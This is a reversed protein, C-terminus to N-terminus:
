KDSAPAIDLSPFCDRSFLRLSRVHRLVQRWIREANWWTPSHKAMIRRLSSRMAKNEVKSLAANLGWAKVGLLIFELSPEVPKASPLYTLQIASLPNSANLVDSVRASQGCKDPCYRVEIRMIAQTPRIGKVEFLQLAKDYVVIRRGSREAGLYHSGVKWSETGDKAFCRMWNLNEQPKVTYAILDHISQGCIDVSPDIRTIRGKSLLRRYSNGFLMKLIQRIDEIESKTRQAPNFDLRAFHMAPKKGRFQLLALKKGASSNIRYNDEYATKRIRALTLYPGDASEGILDDVASSFEDTDLDRYGFTASLRDCIARQLVPHPDSKAIVDAIADTILNTNVTKPQHTHSHDPHYHDHLSPTTRDPLHKNSRVSSKQYSASRQASSAISRTAKTSKANQASTTARTTSQRQREIAKPARQTQNNTTNASPNYTKM